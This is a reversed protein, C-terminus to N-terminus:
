NGEGLWVGSENFSHNKGDIAATGTVMAGDSGCYYWNGQYPIWGTVMYGQENFYYWKQDNPDSWWGNSPWTGDAYRYWYLGLAEDYQWGPTYVVSNPSTTVLGSAKNESGPGTNEQDIIGGAELFSAYDANVYTSESEESWYGDRYEKSKDKALARVKFTYDGEKTMVKRFNYHTNKTKRTTVKSQDRYLYIEYQYADEVEDWRALTPKDEDWYVDGVTDLRTTSAFAAVVGSISLLFAACVVALSRAFRMKQM